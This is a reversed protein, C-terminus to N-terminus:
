RKLEACSFSNGLKCAKEFFLRAKRSDQLLKRGEKYLLGVRV